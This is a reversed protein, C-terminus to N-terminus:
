HRFVHLRNGRRELRELEIAAGKLRGLVGSQERQVAIDAETVREDAGRDKMARRRGLASLRVSSEGVGKAIAVIGFTQGPVEGASRDALVLFGGDRQLTRRPLRPFPRAVCGRSCRQLPGRAQRGVIACSRM